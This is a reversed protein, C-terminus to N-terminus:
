AKSLVVSRAACLRHRVVAGPAGRSRDALDTRYKHEWRTGWGDTWRVIANMGHLEEAALRGGIFRAGAFGPPLMNIAPDAV